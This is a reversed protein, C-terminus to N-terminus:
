SAKPLSITRSPKLSYVTSRNSPGSVQDGRQSHVRYTIPKVPIQNKQNSKLKTTAGVYNWDSSNETRAEVILVSHVSNGKRAKKLQNVGEAQPRAALHTPPLVQTIPTKVIHM